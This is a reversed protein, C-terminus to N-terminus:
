ITAGGMRRIRRANKSLKVIDNFEKVNKADITNDYYNNITTVSPQTPKTMISDSVVQQNRNISTMARLSYDMSGLVSQIRSGGNQIGSLDLVPRIRPSLDIGADIAEALLSIPSRIAELAREGISRSSTDVDVLRRRIENIFGEITFDAIKATAKSPSAIQLISKLGTLAVEGFDSAAKEVKAKGGNIIDLFGDIGNTAIEEMNDENFYKEFGEIGSLSFGSMTDKFKSTKGQIASILGSTTLEGTEKGLDGMSGMIGSSVESLSGMASKIDPLGEKIGESLGKAFGRSEKKAVPSAFTKDIWEQATDMADHVAPIFGLIGDILALVSDAAGRILARIATELLEPLADFVGDIIKECIDVLSIIISPTYAALEELLVAIVYLVTDALPGAIWRIVKLIDDAISLVSAILISSQDAIKQVLLILFDVVLAVIDVLIEPLLDLILKAAAIFGTAALSANLGFSGLALTVAILGAGLVALGAGFVTISGAVKLMDVSLPSLIKAAVGLITLTAALGGVAAVVGLIPLSALVILPASLADVAVAMLLFASASKLGGSDLTNMAIAMATIIAVLSLTGTLAKDWDMTCLIRVAPAIAAVAIGMILFSSASKLSKITNLKSMAISMALLVASFSAVGILAEDWDMTSLLKVAASVILMAVGFEEFAFAVFVISKTDVTFSKLAKGIMLLLAGFSAVGIIAEDLQLTSLIKVAVSAILLTTGLSKFASAIVPITVLSNADFKSIYKLAVSLALMVAGLSIAATLAKDTDLNGIIALAASIYILSSALMKFKKDSFYSIISSLMNKGTSGNGLQVDSIKNLLNMVAILAALVTLISGINSAIKEGDLLSLVLLSAALTKIVGGGDSGEKGVSKLKNSINQLIAPVEKLVKSLNFFLSALGGTMLTEVASKISGSSLLEPVKELVQIVLDFIKEIITGSRSWIDLLWEFFTKLPNDKFVNGFSNSVFTKVAEALRDFWPSVKEVVEKIKSLADVFESWTPLHIDIGTFDEVSKKANSIIGSIKDFAAKIKEIVKLFGEWTPTHPEIGLADQVEKIKKQINPVIEFISDIFDMFDEITPMKLEYGFIGLLENLRDKVLGVKEQIKGFINSLEEWTPIHLDIGTYKEFEEGIVKFIDKVKEFANAFFETEKANESLKTLFNGAASAADLALTGIDKLPGSIPKIADLFATFAQKALDTVATIGSFADKFKQGTTTLEGTNRYIDQISIGYKAFSGALKSLTEASIDPILNQIGSKVASIGLNGVSGVANLVNRIGIGVVQLGSFNDIWDRIVNRGSKLTETFKEIRKTIDTLRQTTVEPILGSFFTKVRNISNELAELVNFFSQIVAERGDPFEEVWQKLFDNKETMGEAFITWLHETITSWFDVQQEYNGLISEIAVEWQTSVADKTADIAETFTKAAQASKFAKVSLEDYDKEMAQIAEIATEYKGSEVADRIANSFESFKGFAKEMVETDAWNDKLTSGFNAITVTGKNIKGLEEGVQIFIEKLQASAVGALELSKWDIYQLSGHGYSQNLNYIARSFEGAGKGAYAVSNAIGTIMPLVKEIDAGSSTLQALSKTMDTFGYSTEDSFWMLGELYGEVEEVSKGTANVITQVSQAKEEVKKFGSTLQDISLSRALQIGANIAKDTINELARIGIIRLTTFRESVAEVADSIGVLNFSNGANQLATLGKASSSFDLANKLKDLTSLSVKARQEFQQNDLEMRTIRDDVVKSM